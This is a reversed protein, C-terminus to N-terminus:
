LPLGSPAHYGMRLIEVEFLVSAKIGFISVRRFDLRLGRKYLEAAERVLSWM